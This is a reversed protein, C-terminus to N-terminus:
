RAKTFYVAHVDPRDWRDRREAHTINYNDRGKWKTVVMGPGFRNALAIVAELCAWDTAFMDKAPVQIRKAVVTDALEFYRDANELHKRM